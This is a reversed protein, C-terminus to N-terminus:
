NLGFTHLKWRGPNHKNRLGKIQLALRSRNDGGGDHGQLGVIQEFPGVGKDIKDAFCEVLTGRGRVDSGPVLRFVGLECVADGNAFKVFLPEPEFFSNLIRQLHELPPLCLAEPRDLSTIRVKTWKTM